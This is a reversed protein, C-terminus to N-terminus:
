TKTKRTKRREDEKTRRFASRQDKKIGRKTDKKRRFAKRKKKM